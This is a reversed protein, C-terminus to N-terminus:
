LYRQFFITFLDTAEKSAKVDVASNNPAAGEIAPVFMM